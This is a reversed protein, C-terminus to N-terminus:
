HICPRIVITGMGWETSILQDHDSNLYTEKYKWIRTQRNAAESSIRIRLSLTELLNQRMEMLWFVSTRVCQIQVMKVPM